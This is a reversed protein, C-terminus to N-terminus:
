VNSVYWLSTLFKYDPSCILMHKKSASYERRCYQIGSSELVSIVEQITEQEGVREADDIIICFSPLLNNRVIDVIQSRSFHKSGRPGDVLIFDFKKEDVIIDIDKYTLTEMGKYMITELEMKQITINYDGDRGENFSSIWQDDHECTIAGVQYYNAYQHIMKSSQGLGFELIHKPKIDNLVKYLSYLLGYDVAWGGPSFNRYKLWHSDMITNNFRQAYLIETLLVTQLRFFKEQNELIKNILLHELIFHWFKRM